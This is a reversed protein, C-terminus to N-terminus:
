TKGTLISVLVIEKASACCHGQPLVCRRVRNKAAAAYVRDVATRLDAARSTVGLVRGGATFFAGDHRTTGAHFVKVGEVKGADELGM